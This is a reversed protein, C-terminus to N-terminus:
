KKLTLYGSKASHGKFEIKYFYTGSPLEHGNNTLGKFVRTTNDYDEIKFVEDGWRNFITVRNSKTEELVDIYRIQFSDNFNDGNPSLANYVAIAGVVEISLQAQSCSGLLDCVEITIVDTGLFGLGSYDLLLDFNVDIVAAAGSAPPSIIKLTTLDLNNDADTIFDPLSIIIQGEAPAVSEPVVISPAVNCVVPDSIVTIADSPVSTCSNGDTVQVSYIGPSSVTIQQSTAGTSWGYSSFGPPATLLAVTSGCITVTGSVPIIDSTIIPKSPPTNIIATVLTRLSECLGNNISVYYPTTASLVPTTFTGNVEGPFPLGGSAVNYWRYNGNTAGSATLTVVGASCRSASSVTPPAAPNVTLSIANSTVSGCGNNIQVTYSAADAPSVALISYSANTAGSIAVTNKRWQYTFPATGGATVSFAVPAGQCIAANPSLASVSPPTCVASPTTNLLVALCDGYMNFYTSIIDPKGDGNVDHTVLRNGGSFNKSILSSISPGTANGRYINITGPQSSNSFQTGLVLDKFGDGNMDIWDQANGGLSVVLASGTFVGTGDNIYFDNGSSSVDFANIDPKGDNNLDHIELYNAASPYQTGETFSGNGNGTFLVLKNVNNFTAALDQKGDANFDAAKIEFIDESVPFSTQNFGTGTGMLVHILKGSGTVVLDPHTDNNFDATAIRGFTSPISINPLQTFQGNGSGTLVTVSSPNSQNFTVLDLHNDKNYDWTLIQFPFVGATYNTASKSFKGQGQGLYVSINNAGTSHCLAVDIVGDENFDGKVIDRPDTTVPYKFVSNSFYGTGDGLLIDIRGDGSFGGVAVVDANGDNNIDTIELGTVACVIEFRAIQTFVGAGDGAFVNVNPHISGSFDVGVIDPHGDNNLDGAAFEVRSEPLNVPAAFTGTGNNLSYGPDALLDLDGDNDLDRADVDPTNSFGNVTTGLTFTPTSQGNGNWIQINAVGGPTVVLAFDPNTDANFDAVTIDFGANPDAPLITPSSFGGAGNGFFIYVEADTGIHSLIVDLNNDKNLDGVAIGQPRDATNFNVAAAFNGTGNGPLLSFNDNQPSCGVVDLNGDENFDGVAVDIMYTSAPINKFNAGSFTGSGNSLLLTFQKNAEQTYNASILDAKGDNNFDGKALEYPTDATSLSTVAPFTVQAFGAFSILSLAITFSFTITRFM